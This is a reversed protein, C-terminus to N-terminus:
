RFFLDKLLDGLWPEKMKEHFPDHNFKFEKKNYPARWDDYIHKRSHMVSRHLTTDNLCIRLPIYLNSANVLFRNHPVKVASTDQAAHIILTDICGINNQNEIKAFSAENSLFAILLTFIYRM